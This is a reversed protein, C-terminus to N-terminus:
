STQDTHPSEFEQGGAGSAPVRGSQAVCRNTIHKIGRHVKFTIPDVVLFRIQTAPAVDLWQMDHKSYGFM